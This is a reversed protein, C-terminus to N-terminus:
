ALLMLGVQLVIIVILVSIDVGGITPVVRRVPRLFPATLRDLVAMVPSHPQVWSLVALVILLFMLGQLATRLLLKFAMTVIGLLLTVPAVSVPATGTVLALWIGGYALALLFAAMLSGWDVRSQSLSKPLARRVPQVLWNTLALVFRGPQVTMQVRQHNMWARLLAAAVLFFFLTDLLFLIVRM